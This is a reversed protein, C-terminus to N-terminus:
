WGRTVLIALGRMPKSVTGQHIELRRTNAGQPEQTACSLWLQDLDSQPVASDWLRHQRHKSGQPEVSIRQGVFAGFLAM